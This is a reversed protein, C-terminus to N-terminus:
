SFSLAQLIKELHEAPRLYVNLLKISERESFILLSSDPSHRIGYYLAEINQKTFMYRTSVLNRM